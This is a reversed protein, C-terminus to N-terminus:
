ERGTVEGLPQVPIRLAFTAGKGLESAVSIQGGQSEVIRKAIALGIGTGSPKSTYFLDFIRPLQHGEIGPGTDSVSLEAVPESGERVDLRSRLTLEGRGEMAELANVTLAELIEYLSAADFLATPLSPELEIRVKVGEPARKRSDEALVELAGNLNTPMAAAKFPRAFDLVASIRGELRDVEGIIDDLTAAIPHTEAIESREVEACARISALPNRIGHSVTTALEGVAALRETRVLEEQTRRIVEYAQANKNALDSQKELAEELGATRERVTAELEENYRRNLEDALKRESIDHMMGTFYRAGGSRRVESVALELPFVSGDKRQGLVERGGRGIIRPVGGGMYRKLYDDHELRVPMPTLMSVNQGIMEDVAYGFLQEAAPNVGEIVGREDITVIGEAASELIARTRAEAERLNALYRDRERQDSEIKSSLRSGYATIAVVMLVILSAVLYEYDGLSSAADNQRRLNSAQIQSVQRQVDDLATRVEAYRRDMAAMHRGAVEPDNELHRFIVRAEGAMAVMALQTRDLAALLPEAVEEEVNRELDVRATAVAHEFEFLATGLRASEGEPDRSAFVDNGPANVSSSLQALDVFRGSRATWGQNVEVSARYIGLIQHTLLLTSSVTILDFAALLYYLHHWKLRVGPPGASSRRMSGSGREDNPTM